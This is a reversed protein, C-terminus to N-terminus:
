HLQLNQPTLVGGVEEAYMNRLLAILDSKDMVVLAIALANICIAPNDSIAQALEFAATQNTEEAIAVLAQWLGTALKNAQQFPLM